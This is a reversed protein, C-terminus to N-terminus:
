FPYAIGGAISSYSDKLNLHAEVQGMLKEFGEFPIPASAGVAVQIATEYKENDSNLNLGIPLSLHPYIEYGSVDFGKSVIPTASLISRRSDFEEANEYAAKVSFRPQMDYDPFIMIDSSVFFRNPRDGTGFGAGGEVALIENAKYQYSAQMGFGSGNNIIGLMQTSISHKSEGLPLVSQGTGYSMGKASIILALLCIIKKM